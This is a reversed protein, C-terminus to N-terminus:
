KIRLNFFFGAVIRIDMHDLTIYIFIPMIYYMLIITNIFFVFYGIDNYTLLTIDNIM